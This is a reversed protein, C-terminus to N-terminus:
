KIIEIRYVFTLNKKKDQPFTIEKGDSDLLTFTFSVLDSLHITKFAFALHSPKTQFGSDAFNAQLRKALGKALSWNPVKSLYTFGM